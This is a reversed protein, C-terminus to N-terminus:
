WACHGPRGRPASVRWLRAPPSSPPPFPHPTHRHTQTHIPINTQTHPQILKYTHKHTHTHTDTNQNPSELHIQFNSLLHKYMHPSAERLVARVILVRHEQCRSPPLCHCLNSHQHSTFLEGCAPEGVATEPRRVVHGLCKLGM